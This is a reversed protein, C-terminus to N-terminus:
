DSLYVDLLGDPLRVHLTRATRDLTGLIDDTVPILVEKGQYQMVILDQTAMTAIEQITGLAGAQEDVIQFGVVEHYYFQDGELEPLNDLPLWLPANVIQAAQEVTDVEEFKVIVRNAQVNIADIFYPVLVGERELLVSDMEDYEFPDDVDLLVQVEGKLGHIKTIRGLEYCDDKTM